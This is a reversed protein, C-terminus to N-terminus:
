IEISMAVFGDELGFAPGRLMYTVKAVLKKGTYKKLDPDWEHLNLTDGVNFDRDNRRLEFKKLGAKVMEFYEPWCKLDHLNM